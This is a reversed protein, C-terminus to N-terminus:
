EIVIGNGTKMHEIEIRKVFEIRGRSDLRFGNENCWKTFTEPDIDARIAIDGSDKIEKIQRKVFAQWEKFTSPMNKSDIFLDFAKRYTIEDKYWAIGTVNKM